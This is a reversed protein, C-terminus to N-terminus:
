SLISKSITIVPRVDYYTNNAFDNSLLGDRRVYWVISGAGANCYPTKTWYGVSNTTDTYNCGYDTCSFDSWGLNDFLWAYNSTGQGLSAHENDKSDLYFWSSETATSSNWNAGVIYAVENAKILRPQLSSVWGTTDTSLATAVEKQVSNDNTSNYAVNATTNHDLIAYYNNNDEKYIYWKMCGTKVGTITHNADNNRNAKVDAESCKTNLNTPDLYAIGLYTQSLHKVGSEITVMNNKESQSYLYDLASQLTNTEVKSMNSKDITVSSANLNNVAYVGGTTILLGIVFGILLKINKRIM